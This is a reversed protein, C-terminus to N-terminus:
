FLRNVKLEKNLLKLREMREHEINERVQITEKLKKINGISHGSQKKSPIENEKDEYTRTKNRL